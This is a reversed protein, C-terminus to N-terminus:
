IHIHILEDWECFFLNLIWWFKNFCHFAFESYSAFRCYNFINFLVFIDLRMKNVSTNAASRQHNLEVMSILLFSKLYVLLQAENNKKQLTNFRRKRCEATCIHNVREETQPKNMVSKPTFSSKCKSYISSRRNFIFLWARSMNLFYRSLLAFTIYRM